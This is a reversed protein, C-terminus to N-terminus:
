ASGEFNPVTHQNSWLVFSFPGGFVAQEGSFGRAKTKPTEKQGTIIPAEAFEPRGPITNSWREVTWEHSESCENVQSWGHLLLMLMLGM